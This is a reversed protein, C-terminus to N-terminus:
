LILLLRGNIVVADLNMNKASSMADEKTHVIPKGKTNFSTNILAKINYKEDLLILLDYLYPNESRDFITQIRSTGDVHVVGEIEEAMDKVIDFDLLMYKSLLPIEKKNTFLKVNKLLMVPAVPRYWERQKHQMSVKRALSKSNALALISRNGLARPGIEADGNCIGIVKNETLLRAVDEIDKTTYTLEPQSLGWNVLYPSHPHITGHKQWEVFAAAGLALGSDECAPPIFIQKFLQKNHLETNAVINLASGGSYYLYDAGTLKQLREFNSILERVFIHHMTAVIDQLFPDETHLHTKKWGFMEAASKYFPTKNGWIDKFFDNAKLWSEMESSYNGYAALGMMKGPVSQQDRFKAGIIGFILANANFMSTLWKLNWHAEIPAIKDDVFHWASFNSKSAGGDFHILLSNKKFEGFFPLTAGIHALEHNLIYAEREKGLWRCRGKEITPVITDNLPAEFRFRGGDSIFARGVVNDVFIIDYNDDKLLGEDKLLKYIHSHLSNDHKVGTLRELTLTKVVRGKHFLAIAHDHSFAPETKSISDRIGYIALTPIGNDM